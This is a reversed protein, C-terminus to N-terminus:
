GKIPLDYVRRVSTALRSIDAGYIHLSISTEQGTNVMRHIDGPPAFGSVEGVHNTTEGAVVLHDGELRYITEHEVGQLIGFACWAIHDHIPTIQGPRWVVGLISFPAEPDVHLLHPVYRDPDGAREAETLIDPGPLNARLADAVRWATRAPTDGQAVVAAVAEALPALGPRTVLTSM